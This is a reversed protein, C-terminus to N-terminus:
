KVAPLITLVYDAFAAGQTDVLTPNALLKTTRNAPATPGAQWHLRATGPATAQVTVQGLRFAGSGGTPALTGSAFALSGAPVQQGNLVCNSASNCITNQLTLDLVTNDALVQAPGGDRNTPVGLQLAAAPFTLYSQQGGVTTGPKANVWLELVFRDGVHVTGGNAPAKGQPRLELIACGGTPPAKPAAVPLNVLQGFRASLWGFDDINVVGDGTWDARNDTLPSQGFTAYLIGFDSVDVLNDNNADGAPQLGMEVSTTVAHNYVFTGSTSLYTPGKVRWTYTGNPMIPLNVSFNGSNDTMLGNFHYDTGSNTLTLNLPLAQSPDPQAPRGEWIVHGTFQPTVVHIVYDQYLTRDSVTNAADTIKSNRNAPDPPYFQWHVTADGLASAMFTVQAVRFDGSAGPAPPQVSASSAYAIEGTTNNVVNQLAVPFTTTDQTVTTRPLGTSPNVNQLQAPPFTLYSQQAVVPHTGANVFLDLTVISGLGVTIQNGPQFHAYAPPDVLFPSYNINASVHDGSGPGVSGPGNTANWWNNTLDTGPGDSWAGYATNGMFNNRHGTLALPAGGVYNRLILGYLLGNFTNHDIAGTTGQPTEGGDGNWMSVGVGGAGLFTNDHISAAPVAVGWVGYQNGTMLNNAVTISPNSNAYLLIGAAGDANSTAPDGICVAVTCFNGSVVNGTISGTGGFGIQIGNQAILPTNGTGTVTNNTVNATLGVGNLAMGNKQYDSITNHDVTLTRPTANDIFAYIGVGAQVGDLPTNRVQVITTHDIVGGANYFAVGVMVNNANGLGLGDITLNQVVANTDHVYLIPKKTSFKTVLSAPSQIITSGQGAGHLTIAKGIDIQEVYTGASVNVTGGPNSFNIGDQITSFTGVPDTTTVMNVLPSAPQAALANAAGPAPPAALVASGSQTSFFLSSILTLM